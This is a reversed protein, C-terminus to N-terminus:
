GGGQMEGGRFDGKRDAGQDQQHDAGEDAVLAGTQDRDQRDQQQDGCRDDRDDSRPADGEVAGIDGIRQGDVGLAQDIQRGGHRDHQAVAPHLARADGLEFIRDQDHQGRGAHAHHRGRAVQDGHIDPDLQMRQSQIHQGGEVAVVDLRRFRAQLIEDQAGQRRAQQQIAGAQDITEGTRHPELVDGGEGGVVGARAQHETQDEQDAAQRELNRGRREVHPRGVDVLARRRRDHGQEGRRGLDRGHDQDGARQLM